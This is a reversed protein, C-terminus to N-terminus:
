GTSITCFVIQYISVSFITGCPALHQGNANSTQHRFWLHGGCAVALGVPGVLPVDFFAHDESM